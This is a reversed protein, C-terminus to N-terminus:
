SLGGPQGTMPGTSRAHEAACVAPVTAVVDDDFLEAADDATAPALAASVRAALAVATTCMTAASPLSIAENVAVLANEETTWEEDSIV